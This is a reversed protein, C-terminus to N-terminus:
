NVGYRQIIEQIDSPTGGRLQSYDEVGFAEGYESIISDWAERAQRPDYGAQMAAEPDIEYLMGAYAQRVRELNALFAEHSLGEPNVNAISSELLQLEIESVQGLAGGTPSADRMAQLADFALQARLTKADENLDRAAGRFPLARAFAGSTGTEFWGSNDNADLAMESARGIFRMLAGRARADARRAVEQQEANERGAEQITRQEARNARQEAAEAIALRRSEAPSVAQRIIPDERPVRQPAQQPPQQPAQRGNRQNLIDQSRQDLPPM